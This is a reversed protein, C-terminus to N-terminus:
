GGDAALEVINRLITVVTEMDDITIQEDTSHAARGGYGIV